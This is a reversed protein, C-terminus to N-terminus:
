QPRWSPLPTPTSATRRVCPAGPAATECGNDLTEGRALLQGVLEDASRPAGGGLWLDPQALLDRGALRSAADARGAAAMQLRLASVEEVLMLTAMTQVAAQQRANDAQMASNQLQRVRDAALSASQQGFVSVSHLDLASSQEEVRRRKEVEKRATTDMAGYAGLATYSYTRAGFISSLQGVTPVRDLGLFMPQGNRFASAWGLPRSLREAAAGIRQVDTYAQQGLQALEIVEMVDPNEFIEDVLEHYADTVGEPLLGYEDALGALGIIAGIPGREGLTQVIRYAMALQEALKAVQSIAQATQRVSESFNTPDFVIDGIGFLAKSPRAYLVAGAAFATVFVLALPLAARRRRRRTSM